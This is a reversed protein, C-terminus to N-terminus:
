SCNAPDTEAHMLAGEAIWFGPKFQVNAKASFLVDGTTTIPISATITNYDYYNETTSISGTDLVLDDDNDCGCVGVMVKNPDRPCEDDGDDDGDGDSDYSCSADEILGHRASWCTYNNWGGNGVGGSNQILIGCDEPWYNPEGSGWHTYSYSTSDTWYWGGNGYQLQSDFLGIWFESYPINAIDALWDNEADSHISALNANYPSNAEQSASSWTKSATVYYCTKNGSVNRIYPGDAAYLQLPLLLLSAFMLLNLRKM